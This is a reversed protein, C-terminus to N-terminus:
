SAEQNNSGDSTSLSVIMLCKHTTKAYRRRLNQSSQKRIGVCQRKRNHHGHITINQHYSQKEHSQSTRFFLQSRTVLIYNTNINYDQLKYLIALWIYKIDEM